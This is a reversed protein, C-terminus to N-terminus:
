TRWIHLFRPCRSMTWPRCPTCGWIADRNPGTITTTFTRVAPQACDSRLATPHRNVLRGPFRLSLRASPVEAMILRLLTTGLPPLAMEPPAALCHRRPTAILSKMGCLLLPRPTPTKVDLPFAPNLARDHPRLTQLRSIPMRPGSAQHCTAPGRINPTYPSRQILVETGLAVM